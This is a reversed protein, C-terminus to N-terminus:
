IEHFCSGQAIRYKKLKSIFLIYSGETEIFMVLLFFTLKNVIYSLRYSVHM